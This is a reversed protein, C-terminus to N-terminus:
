FPRSPSSLFAVPFIYFTVSQFSLFWMSPTQKQLLRARGACLLPGCGGGAHQPWHVGRRGGHSGDTHSPGSYRSAPSAAAPRPAATPAGQHQRRSTTLCRKVGYACGGRRLASPVPFSQQCRHPHLYCLRGADRAPQRAGRRQVRCRRLLHQSSGHIGKARCQISFAIPGRGTCGLPPALKRKFM